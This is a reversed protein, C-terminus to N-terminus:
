VMQTSRVRDPRGCVLQQARRQAGSVGRRDWRHPPKGSHSFREDGEAGGSPHVDWGVEKKRKEKREKM